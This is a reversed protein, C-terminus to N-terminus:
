LRQYDYLGCGSDGAQNLRLVSRGMVSDELQSEGGAARM